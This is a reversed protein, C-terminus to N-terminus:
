RAVLGVRRSNRSRFWTGFGVGRALRGFVGSTKWHLLAVVLGSTYGTRGGNSHM